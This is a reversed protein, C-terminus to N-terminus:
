EDPRDLVRVLRWASDSYQGDPECLSPLQEEVEGHGPVLSIPRVGLAWWTCAARAHPFSANGALLPEVDSSDLTWLSPLLPRSLDM